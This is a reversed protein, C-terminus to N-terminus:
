PRRERARSEPSEEVDEYEYACAGTTDWYLSVGLRMSEDDSRYISGESYEVSNGWSKGGEIYTEYGTLCAQPYAVACGTICLLFALSALGQRYELSPM